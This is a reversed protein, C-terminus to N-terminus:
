QSRNYCISSRDRICMKGEGADSESCCAAGCLRGCDSKLPTLHGIARYAETILQPNMASVMREFPTPMHYADYLRVGPPLLPALALVGKIPPIAGLPQFIGQLGM